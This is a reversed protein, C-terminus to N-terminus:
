TPGRPRLLRLVAWPGVDLAIRSRAPDRAGGGLGVWRRRPAGPGPSLGRRLDPPVHGRRAAPGQLREPSALAVQDADRKRDRTRSLGAGAGFRWSIRSTSMPTATSGSTGWWTQCSRRLSPM